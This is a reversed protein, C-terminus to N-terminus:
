WKQLELWLIRQPLIKTTTILKEVEQQLDQIKYSPELNSPM